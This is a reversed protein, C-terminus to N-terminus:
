LVIAEKHSFFAHQNIIPTHPLHQRGIPHPALHPEECLLLYPMVCQTINIGDGITINIGDCITINIGDCITTNIVGWEGDM